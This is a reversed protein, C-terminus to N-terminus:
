HHPAHHAPQHRATAVDSHSAAAASKSPQFPRINCFDLGSQQATARADFESSPGVLGPVGFGAPLLGPPFVFSFGFARLNTTQSRDQVSADLVPLFAARAEAIKSEAQQMSEQALALRVNGEPTLAIEVARKLSLPLTTQAAALAAATFLMMLLRMKTLRRSGRIPSRHGCGRPAM